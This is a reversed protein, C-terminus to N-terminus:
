NERRWLGGIWYKKLIEPYLDWEQEQIKLHLTEATDKEDVTVARQGLIPGTDVGQDVIHATCGAIKVGYELAQKWAELGPFAPLLSPHINLVRNPFATLFPGQLIRMFGALAVLDVEAEKLAEIFRKEGDPSLRAGARGPDIYACPIGMERALDLMGANPQDVLALVVEFASDAKMSAEAISKFNSGKGSGLVGIRAPRHHNIQSM